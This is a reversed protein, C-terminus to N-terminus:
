PAIEVGNEGDESVICKSLNFAEILEAALMECSMSGLKNTPYFEQLYEEIRHKLVIFEVDRDDHSVEVYATIHFVHRHENQLYAVEEIDCNEWNHTAEFFVKCFVLKM